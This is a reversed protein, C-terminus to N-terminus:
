FEDPVNSQKYTICKSKVVGFISLYYLHHGYTM